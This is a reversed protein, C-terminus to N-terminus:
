GLSPIEGRTQSHRMKQGVWHQIASSGPRCGVSVRHLLDDTRAPLSLHVPSQTITLQAWWTSQMTSSLCLANEKEAPRSPHLWVSRRRRHGPAPTGSQMPSSCCKECCRRCTQQTKRARNPKQPLLLLSDHMTVMMVHGASGGEAVARLAHTSLPMVALRPAQGKSDGETVLCSLPM